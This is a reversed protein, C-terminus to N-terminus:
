GKPMKRDRFTGGRVKSGMVMRHPPFPQPLVVTSLRIASFNFSRRPATNM